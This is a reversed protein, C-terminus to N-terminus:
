LGYAIQLLTNSCHGSAALSWSFASLGPLLSPSVPLIWTIHQWVINRVVLLFSSQHHTVLLSYQLCESLCIQQQLRNWLLSNCVNLISSQFEWSVYNKVTIALGCWTYFCFSWQTTFMCFEVPQTLWKPLWFVFYIEKVVFPILIQLTKNKNFSYKSISNSFNM